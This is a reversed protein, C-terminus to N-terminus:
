EGTAPVAFALITGTAARIRAAAAFLMFGFRALGIIRLNQTVRRWLKVRGLIMITTAIMARRAAMATGFKRRLRLRECAVCTRSLDSSRRTPFSQLDLPFFYSPLVAM